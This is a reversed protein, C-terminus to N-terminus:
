PTRRQFVTVLDGLGVLQSGAGGGNWTTFTATSIDAPFQSNFAGQNAIKMPTTTSFQYYQFNGRGFEGANFSPNFRVGWAYWGPEIWTTQPLWGTWSTSTSNDITMTAPMPTLLKGPKGSGKGGLTSDRLVAYLGATITWTGGLVVGAAAGGNNYFMFGAVPRKVDVYFKYTYLDVTTSQSSAPTTQYINGDTNGITEYAATQHLYLFEYQEKTYLQPKLPTKQFTQVRM